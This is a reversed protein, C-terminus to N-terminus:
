PKASKSAGRRRALFLLAGGAGLVAAGVEMPILIDTGTRPLSGPANGGVSVSGTTVMIPVSLTLTSGSPATGTVVLTHEGPDTGSPIQFTLTAGGAADVSASGLSIPTSHLTFSVTSGPMFGSVTVTNQCGACTTSSGAAISPPGPPYAAARIVGAPHMAAAEAGTCAPGVLVAAAIAIVHTWRVATTSM